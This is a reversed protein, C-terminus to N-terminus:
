RAAGVRREATTQAVKDRVYLPMAQEAPVAQGRALLGPALRLLADATPLAAVRAAEALQPMREGHLTFVNGAVLSGPAPPLEEPAHLAPPVEEHWRGADYLYTAAYVQDMRADLLASVRLQTADPAHRWRAEEAVALLSDVPLVPLPRGGRVPTAGFALGQAVACATRLGTFAGPGRGFVIAQLTAFGVGSRAMLDLLVPLLVASAQAGGVGEFRCIRLPERLPDGADACAAASLTETSTDLALLQM